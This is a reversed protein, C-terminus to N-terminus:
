RLVGFVDETQIRVEGFEGWSRIFKGGSTFEQIRNNGTDAVFINNTSLDIGIGQPGQFEGPGNGVSGWKRIFTGDPKFKQIRDNGYDVVYVYGGLDIALSVSGDFHGNSSGFSGWKNLFTGGSTFVQIRNNDASEATYVNGTRPSVAVDSLLGFQGNGSGGTGWKRIFKGGSSFKQIRDNDQDAVYVNGASDVGIGRFVDFQGNGQGDSGWKRIFTGDPKFKQIRDNAWDAVYVYGRSDVGLDIPFKFQSDGNSLPGTGDPDEGKDGTSIECYTGWSRIFTGDTEFKQIRDNNTDAVYVNGGLDVTVGEPSNFRVQAFVFSSQSSYFVVSVLFVVLVTLISTWRELIIM